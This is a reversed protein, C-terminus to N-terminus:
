YISHRMQWLNWWLMHLSHEHFDHSNDSLNNSTLRAMEWYRRSEVWSSLQKMVGELSLSCTHTCSTCFCISFNRKSMPKHVFLVVVSSSLVAAKIVMAYCKLRVHFYIYQNKNWASLKSLNLVNRYLILLSYLAVLCSLSRLHVRTCGRHGYRCVM